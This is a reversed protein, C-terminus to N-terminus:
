FANMSLFVLVITLYCLWSFADYGVYYWCWNEYTLLILDVNMAHHELLISELKLSM